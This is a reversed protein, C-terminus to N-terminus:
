NELSEANQRGHLLAHLTVQVGEERRYYQRGTDMIIEGSEAVVQVFAPKGFAQHIATLFEATAPQEAQIRRWAAQRANNVTHVDSNVTTM